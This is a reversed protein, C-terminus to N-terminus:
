GDFFFGLFGSLWLLNEWTLGLEGKYGGQGGVVAERAGILHKKRLSYFRSRERQNVQRFRFVPRTKAERSAQGTM